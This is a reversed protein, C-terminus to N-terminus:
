ALGVQELLHRIKNEHIRRAQEGQQVYTAQIIKECLKFNEANMILVTAIRNSCAFVISCLFHWSEAFIM